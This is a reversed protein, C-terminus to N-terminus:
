SIMFLSQEIQTNTEIPNSDRGPLHQSAGKDDDNCSEERPFHLLHPLFPSVPLLRLDQDQDQDQEQEQRWQPGDRQRSNTHACSRGSM